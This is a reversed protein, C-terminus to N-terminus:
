FARIPRVPTASSKSGPGPVGNLGLDNAQSNSIQTSSWFSFERSQGYTITFYMRFVQLEDISPLYWDSKGGGGYARALVAASYDADNGNQSEIDISNRYGSGISTGDAGEVWISQNAVTSWTRRPDSGVQYWNDPAVELYRCRLEYMPGCYFDNNEDAAYIVIGGGPGVDGVECNAGQLCTTDITEVTIRMVEESSALPTRTIVIPNQAAASVLKLTVSTQQLVRDPDDVNVDNIADDGDTGGSSWTFVGGINNVEISNHVKNELVQRDSVEVEDETITYRFLDLPSDGVGYAKVRFTKGDCAGERSDIGSIKIFALKHDGGGAGNVFTSTPTVTIGDPDCATTTVVGQGFEVPSDGNLNIDAAFTSGLALAGVLVGAGLVLIFPKKPALEKAASSEFELIPM